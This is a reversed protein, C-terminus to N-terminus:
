MSSRHPLKVMVRLILTTQAVPLPVAALETELQGALDRVEAVHQRADASTELLAEVAACEEADLEGLAYSTLRAEDVDIPRREDGNSNPNQNHNEANM